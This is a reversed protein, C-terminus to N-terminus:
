KHVILLRALYAMEEEYSIVLDGAHHSADTIIGRGLSYDLLAVSQERPITSYASLLFATPSYEHTEYSAAVAISRTSTNVSEIRKTDNSDQFSSVTSM